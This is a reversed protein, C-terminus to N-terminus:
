ALMSASIDMALVIDIGETSINKWSTTSQPRALTIILLATAILKLAFMIHRLYEKLSKGANSFNEISSIIAFVCFRPLAAVM